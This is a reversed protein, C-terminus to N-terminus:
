TKSVAVSAVVRSRRRVILLGLLIGLAAGASGGVIFGIPWAWLALIQWREWADLSIGPRESISACLFAAGWSTAVALLGSLSPVLMIFIGVTRFRTFWLVIGAVFSLVVVGVAAVSAVGFALFLLPV